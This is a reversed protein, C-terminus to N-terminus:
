LLVTGSASLKKAAELRQLEMFNRILRKFSFLFSVLVDNGKDCIKDVFSPFCGLMFSLLIVLGEKWKVCKILDQRTYLVHNCVFNYVKPSTQTSQADDTFLWEHYYFRELCLMKTAFLM